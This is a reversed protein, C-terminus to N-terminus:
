CVKHRDYINRVYEEHYIPIYITSVRRYERRKVLQIM